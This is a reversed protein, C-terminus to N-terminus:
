HSMSKLGEKRKTAEMNTSLLKTRAATGAFLLARQFNLLTPKPYGVALMWTANPADPWRRMQGDACRAM